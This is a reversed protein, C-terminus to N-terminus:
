RTTNPVAGSEIIGNSIAYRTLDAIKHLDLKQMLSQRHKEVTKISLSLMPAIQKSMYGEAVLQLVQSQRSTLPNGNGLAEDGNLMARWTTMLRQCICPSIFANGQAVERVARLLDQSGTHKVLYGTAGAQVAQRVHVDDTYGSLMLVKTSPVESVIQRTAEVGNLLPMALDLLAVRPRLRKTQEVAQQGNTAEGVVIIDEATELLVRLASRVITHDDSILVTIKNIM